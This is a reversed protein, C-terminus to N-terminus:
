FFILLEDFSYTLHFCRLMQGKFFMKPFNYAFLLKAKPKSVFNDLSIRTQSKDTLEKLSLHPM